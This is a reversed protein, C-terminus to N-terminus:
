NRPVESWPVDRDVRVDGPLGLVREGLINQMVETTGGEISNARSRLFSKQLSDSSMTMEPRHMAYSGYLMGDAGLLAMVQEFIAKNLNASEMKGISGEPGPDGMRRNQNARINTLRHVEARIWLRMVEDRTSADRREDPLEGWVQMLHAITGSGRQPIGGGISTRENMLTTLSVRWGDGPNGLLEDNPIRTDTFYVENFEAEGTMQRLPRTEVTPAEMDVVMATLGAHKVAEPDTRVVLLGWRSVHALTTWVKQGNVVWEDGDRVGRSSLGAFDSGSGPESFLQCWIEECTFLPRLYRQKQDDSGWVHVTPGCMGYGIPNRAMCFPGGAASIKENVIRQLKPSLGLGGFGEDFHVWALGRDYQEGLFERAPTTAPPFAELLEETLDSIRQEDSTLPADIVAM